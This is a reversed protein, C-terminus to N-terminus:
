NCNACGTNCAGTTCGGGCGCGHKKHREGYGDKPWQGYWSFQTWHLCPAVGCGCPGCTIAGNYGLESYEAFRLATPQPVVNWPDGSGPFGPDQAVAVSALGLVCLVVALIIKSM